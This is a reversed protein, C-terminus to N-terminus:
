RLIIHSFIERSFFGCIGGLALAAWVILSTQDRFKDFAAIKANVWDRWEATVEMAGSM